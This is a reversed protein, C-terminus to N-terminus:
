HRAERSQRHPVGAPRLARAGPTGGSSTRGTPGFNRTVQTIQRPTLDIVNVDPLYFRVGDGPRFRFENLVGTVPWTDALRDTARPDGSLNQWSQQQLALQSAARQGLLQLYAVDSADIWGQMDFTNLLMTSPSSVQAQLQSGQGDNIGAGIALMSSCQDTADRENAYNILPSVADSTDAQLVEDTDQGERVRPCMNGPFGGVGGSVVPPTAPRPVPVLIAGITIWFSANNSWTPQLASGAGAQYTIPTILVNFTQPGAFNTWPSGPTSGAVSTDAAGLYVQGTAPTLTAGSAPSGSGNAGTFGIISGVGSWESLWCACSTSVLGGGTKLPITLTASTALLNSCWWLEMQQVGSWGSQTGVNTWTNGATDTISGNVGPTGSNVKTTVLLLAQNGATVGSIAPSLPTASANQVMWGSPAQVFTISM